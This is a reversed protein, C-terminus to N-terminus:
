RTQVLALALHLFRYQTKDRYYGKSYSILEDWEDQRQLEFLEKKLWPGNARMKERSRPIVIKDAAAEPLEGDSSNSCM